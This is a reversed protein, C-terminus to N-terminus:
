FIGWNGNKRDEKAKQFVYKKVQEQEEENFDSFKSELGGVTELNPFVKSLDILDKAINISGNHNIGIEAIIKTM